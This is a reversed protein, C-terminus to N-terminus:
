DVVFSFSSNRLVQVQVSEPRDPLVATDVKMTHHFVMPWGAISEMNKKTIGHRPGASLTAFRGLCLFGLPTACAAAVLLIGSWGLCGASRLKSDSTM